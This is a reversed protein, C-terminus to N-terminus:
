ELSCNGVLSVFKILVFEMPHGPASGVARIAVISMPLACQKALGARGVRRLLQRSEMETEEVMAVAAALEEMEAAAAAAAMAVKLCSGVFTDALSRM